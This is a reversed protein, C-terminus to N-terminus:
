NAVGQVIDGTEAEVKLRAKRVAKALDAQEVEGNILATVLQSPSGEGMMKGSTTIYGLFAAANILTPKLGGPM